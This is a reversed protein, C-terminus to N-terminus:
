QKESHGEVWIRAEDRRLGLVDVDVGIEGEGQRVPRKSCPLHRSYRLEVSPQGVAGRQVVLRVAVGCGRELNAIRWPPLRMGRDRGTKVIKRGTDGDCCRTIMINWKHSTSEATSSIFRNIAIIFLVYLMTSASASCFHRSWNRSRTRKWSAVGHIKEGKGQKERALRGFCWTLPFTATAVASPSTCTAPCIEDRGPRLDWVSM